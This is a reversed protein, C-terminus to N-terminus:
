QANILILKGTEPDRYVRGMSQLGEGGGEIAGRVTDPPETLEEGISIVTEGQAIDFHAQLERSQAIFALVVGLAFVLMVDMLNAFGTLPDSDGEDFPSARFRGPRSM